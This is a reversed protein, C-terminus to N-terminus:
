PTGASVAFKPRTLALSFGPRTIEEYEYGDLVTVLFNVGKLEAQRFDINILAAGEFNVDILTALKYKVDKVNPYSITTPDFKADSLTASIFSVNHLTASRFNVNRLTANDFNVHCLTIKIFDIGCLFAKNLNKRCNSFILSGSKDEKFLLDLITQIENSPNKTYNKQYHKARTWTRIHACLIECITNRYEEHEHALYFLSYVGGIRASQKGNGLLAISASFRTELLQKEQINQQKEMVSVRQWMLWANVGLGIVGWFAIWSTTFDELPLGFTSLEGFTNLGTKENILLCLFPCAMFFLLLLLIGLGKENVLRTCKKWFSM